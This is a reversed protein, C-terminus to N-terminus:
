HNIFFTDLELVISDYQNDVRILGINKAYYYTEMKRWQFIGDMHKEVMIVSDYINGGSVISTNVAAIYHYASWYWYHSGLSASDLANDGVTFSLLDNMFGTTAKDTEYLEISRYGTPTSYKYVPLGKWIPVYCPKSEYLTGNVSYIFSNLVYTDSVKYEIAGGNYIWYSGPYVPLYPEPFITDYPSSFEEQDKQCSYFLNIMMFLGTGLLFFRYDPLILNRKM